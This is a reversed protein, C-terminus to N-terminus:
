VNNRKLRCWVIYNLETFIQPYYVLGPAQQDCHQLLSHSLFLHTSRIFAISIDYFNIAFVYFLFCNIRQISHSCILSFKLTFLSMLCQSVFLLRGPLQLCPLRPLPGLMLLPLSSPLNVLQTPQASPFYLSALIYPTHLTASPLSVSQLQIILPWLHQAFINLGLPKLVPFCITGM